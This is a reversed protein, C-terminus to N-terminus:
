QQIRYFKNGSTAPVTQPNNQSPSTTWSAGLSTTEQLTGTGTWSITVSGTALTPANFVPQQVVTRARFARLANTNSTDNVLIRTGDSQISFWELNANAAEQGSVLRLPYIGAQPVAFGFTVDVAGFGKPGDWEALRPNADGRITATVPTGNTLYSKLLGAGYSEAIVLVPIRVNTNIDGLRFPYGTDDPTTQLVAVAGAIQAQEAKFASDCNTAGRDLLVIKGALSTNTGILCADDPNGSPTAYVVPATLPTFPLAGGFQLQTINTAIAVSPIVLNTPSVLQLTQVGATAATLRFQDENNIGMQYYGSAPFRVFTRVDHIFSFESSLTGPIGPFPEDNPFNATAGFSTIWNVVGPVEYTNGAAAGALNAINSGALGALVAESFSISAPLDLQASPPDPQVLTDVQYVGVNFGPKTADESGPASRLATPLTLYDAVTFRFENTQTTVPTGNDSFVIRYTHSSLSPLLGAAYQVITNTEVKQISPSVLISDLLLRISNTNVATSRDQLTVSLNVVPGVRVANDPPDVSAVTPTALGADVVDLSVLDVYGDPAGTGTAAIRVRASRAGAPITGTETDKGWEKVDQPYKTNAGTPLNLIFDSGGLAVPPGVVNNSGDLFELTLDSYDGQILYSSFWASMTFQGLGSDIKAPTLTTTATLSVLQTMTQSSQTIGYTGSPYPRLYAAGSGAPGPLTYLTSYLYTSFTSWGGGVGPNATGGVKVNPNSSNATNEFSGDTILETAEAAGVFALGGTLVALGM